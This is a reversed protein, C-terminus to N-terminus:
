KRPRKHARAHPIDPTGPKSRIPADVKGFVDDLSDPLFDALTGGKTGLREEGSDQHDLSNPEFDIQVSFTVNGKKSAHQLAALLKDSLGLDPGLAQTHHKVQHLERGTPVTLVADMVNVERDLHDFYRQLMCVIQANM